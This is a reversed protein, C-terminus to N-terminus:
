SLMQTGLVLTHPPVMAPPLPPADDDDTALVLPLLELPVLSIHPLRSPGSRVAAQVPQLVAPWVQWAL